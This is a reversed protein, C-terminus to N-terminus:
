LWRSRCWAKPFAHREPLPAPPNGTRETTGKRFNLGPPLFLAPCLTSCTRSVSQRFRPFLGGPPPRGAGLPIRFTFVAHPAYTRTFSDLWLPGAFRQGKNREKAEIPHGATYFGCNPAIFVNNGFKVKAADLIVLNHNSYFNEGIEINYGYDCFFNQEILFNEGTKNFLKKIVEKRKELDSAKINNYEQCIEKAKNREKTLEEDYNPNYILGQKAKEKETM